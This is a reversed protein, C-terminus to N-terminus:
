CLRHRLDAVTAGIVAAKDRLILATCTFSGELVWFIWSGHSGLLQGEHQVAWAGM